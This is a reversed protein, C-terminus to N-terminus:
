YQIYQSPAIYEDFYYSDFEVISLKSNVNKNSETFNYKGFLGEFDDTTSLMQLLSINSDNAETLSKALLNYCDIAQFFYDSHNRDFNNNLLDIQYNSYNSIVILGEFHPGINEKRLIDLDAWNDNGVVVADLNYAPFQAGIYELHGAHIPMYIADFSTLIIKSSDEATMEKEEMVQDVFLSDILIKALDLSDTSDPMYLLESSDSLEWVGASDSLEWVNTSNSSGWVTTSDALKLVDTSDSFIWAATSDSFIWVGTSDYLGWSKTRISNFQRDLNTPIGSYWEVLTPTLDYSGLKDTFADVLSKGFKDAPAIVAINKAELGEVVFEGALEGRTKLDSNMLFIKDSVDALGDLTTSPFILPIENTAAIGGAVIANDASIPGIIAVINPNNTLAQFAAITKLDDGENDYVIISFDTNNSYNSFDAYKLGDLFERGIRGDKGSLPLVAGVAARRTAKIDIRDKLKSYYEQNIELLDRENIQALSISAMASNGAQLETHAKCLILIQILEYDSEISILEEPITPSIGFQLSLFIRKVINKSENKEDNKKFAKIYTRFAADYLGEAIFIDGFTVLVDDAYESGPNDRLLSKGVEKSMQYDNLHYKIRMSLLAIDERFYDKESTSIKQLIDDSESYKGKNYRDVARKFTYKPRSYKWDRTQGFLPVIILFILLYKISNNM